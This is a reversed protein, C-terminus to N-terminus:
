NAASGSTNWVGRHCICARVCGKFEFRSLSLKHLKHASGFQLKGSPKRFLVKITKDGSGPECLALIVQELNCVPHACGTTGGGFPNVKSLKNNLLRLVKSKNTQGLIKQNM